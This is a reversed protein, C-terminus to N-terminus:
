PTLSRLRLASKHSQFIKFYRIGMLPEARKNETRSRIGGHGYKGPGRPKLSKLEELIIAKLINPMEFTSQIQM